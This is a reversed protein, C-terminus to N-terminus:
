VCALTLAGPNVASCMNCMFKWGNDTFRTFPNVYGGCRRCRTKVLEGVIQGSCSHSLPV